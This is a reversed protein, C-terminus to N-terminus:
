FSRFKVVLAKEEANFRLTADDAVLVSVSIQEFEIATYRM